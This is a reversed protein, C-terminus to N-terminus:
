IATACQIGGSHIGFGIEDNREGNASTNSRVLNSKHLMAGSAVIIAYM